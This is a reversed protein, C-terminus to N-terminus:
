DAMCKNEFYELRHSWSIEVDCISLHVSLGIFQQLLITSQMADHPLFEADVEL